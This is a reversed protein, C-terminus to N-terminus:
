HLVREPPAPAKGGQWGGQLQMDWQAKNVADEMLKCFPHLFANNVVFEIGKGSADHLCLANGNSVQKVQIRTPLLCNEGLPYTMPEVSYQQKFNAKSIVNEREFELVEKAAHSAEPARRQLDSGLLQLLVPWLLKVFRRTFFFRFEKRDLTNLRFIIRDEEPSFQLNFQHINM